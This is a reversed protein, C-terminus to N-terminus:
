DSLWTKHAFTLTELTCEPVSSRELVVSHKWLVNLCQPVSWSLQPHHCSMSLCCFDLTSLGLRTEDQTKWTRRSNKKLSNNIKQMINKQMSAWNRTNLCNNWYALFFFVNCWLGQTAWSFCAFACTFVKYKCVSTHYWNLGRVSGTNTLCGCFFFFHRLLSLCTISKSLM